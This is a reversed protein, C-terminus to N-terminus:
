QEKQPLQGGGGSQRTAGKVPSLGAVITGKESAPSAIRERPVDVVNSREM